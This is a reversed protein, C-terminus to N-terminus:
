ERLSIGIITYVTSHFYALDAPHVAAEEGTTLQYQLCSSLQINCQVTCNVATGAPGAQIPRQVGHGGRLLPVHLHLGPRDRPRLLVACDCAPMLLAYYYGGRYPRYLPLRARPLHDEGQLARPRM